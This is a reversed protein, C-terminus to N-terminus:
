QVPTLKRLNDRDLSVPKELRHVAASMNEQRPSYLLRPRCPRMEETLWSSWFAEEFLSAIIERGPLPYETIARAFKEEPTLDRADNFTISQAFLRAEQLVLDALEQSDIM